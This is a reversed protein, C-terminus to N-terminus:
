GIGADQQRQGGHKDAAAGVESADDIAEFEGAVEEFLENEPWEVPGQGRGADPQQLPQALGAPELLPRFAPRLLTATVALTLPIAAVSLGCAIARGDLPAGALVALLVACAEITSLGFAATLVHDSTNVEGDRPTELTKLALAVAPALVVALWLGATQTIGGSTAAGALALMGVPGAVALTFWARVELRPPTLLM